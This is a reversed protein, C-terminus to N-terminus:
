GYKREMKRGFISIGIFVVLVWVLKTPNVLVQIVDYGLLSFLFVFGFIGISSAIAFKRFNMKNFGAIFMVISNPFLPIACLLMIMVSGKRNIWQSYKRLNKKESIKKFFFRKGMYRAIWYLSWAGSLCGIYSLIFGVFLGYSAANTMIFATLPLFPLFAEIFPLIVAPLPGLSGYTDIMAQVQDIAIFQQLEM